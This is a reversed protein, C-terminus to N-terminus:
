RYLEGEGASEGTTGSESDEESENREARKRAEEQDQAIARAEQIAERARIADANQDSEPDEHQRQRRWTLIDNEAQELTIVGAKLNNLTMEPSVTVSATPPPLTTDVEESNWTEGDKDTADNPSADDFTGPPVTDLGKREIRSLQGKASELAAAAKDENGLVENQVLWDYYSYFQTTAISSDIEGKSVLELTEEFTPPVNLTVEDLPGSPTSESTEAEQRAAAAEQRAKMIKGYENMADHHRQIADPVEHDNEWRARDEFNGIAAEPSIDHNDLWQLVTAYDLPEDDPKKPEKQVPVSGTRDIPVERLPGGPRRRIFPPTTAPQAESQAQIQELADRTRESLNGHKRTNAETLKEVAEMYERLAVEPNYGEAIRKENYRNMQAFAEHWNVQDSEFALLTQDFNMVHLTSSVSGTPSTHLEATQRRQLPRVISPPMSAEQDPETTSEDDGGLPFLPEDKKLVPPEERKRIIRANNLNELRRKAALYRAEADVWMPKEYNLRSGLAGVARTYAVISEDREFDALVEEYPKPAPTSQPEVKRPDLPLGETRQLHPRAEENPVATNRQPVRVDNRTVVATAVFLAEVITSLLLTANLMDEVFVVTVWPEHLSGNSIVLMTLSAPTLLMVWFDINPQRWLYAIDFLTKVALMAFVIRLVGTRDIDPPANVMWFGIAILIVGLIASPLRYRM